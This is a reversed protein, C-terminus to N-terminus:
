MQKWAPEVEGCSRSSPFDWQPSMWSSRNPQALHTYHTHVKRMCITGACHCTASCIVHQYITSTCQCTSHAHTMNANQAHMNAYQLHMNIYSMNHMYSSINHKCSPVNHMYTPMTQEIFAISINSINHMNFKVCIVGM